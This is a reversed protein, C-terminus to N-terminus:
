RSYKRIVTALFLSTLFLGSVAEIASVIQIFPNLPSFDGYGLTTFTVVSFYIGTQLDNVAMADKSSYVGGLTYVAGCVLIMIVASLLVNRPSEGYNCLLKYGSLFFWEKGKSIGLKLDNEKIFVRSAGEGDGALEFQQKCARVIRLLEKIELNEEIGQKISIEYIRASHSHSMNIAHIEAAKVYWPYSSRNQSERVKDGAIEWNEAMDRYGITNKDKAWAVILACKAILDRDSGNLVKQYLESAAQSDNKTLSSFDKELFAKEKPTLSPESLTVEAPIEFIEEGGQLRWKYRGGVSLWESCNEKLWVEFADIHDRAVTEIEEAGYDSTPLQIGSPSNDSLFSILFEIGNVQNVDEGDLIERLSDAANRFWLESM